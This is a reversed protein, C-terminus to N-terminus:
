TCWRRIAKAYLDVGSSLQSLSVWEDSTHAQAINGPGLVFMDKLETFEGGDTGYCVTKPSCEALKCMERICERDPDVWVFGGGIHRKFKLGLEEAMTRVEEILDEGDIEPMSRLSVWAKCRDPTINVAKAGDSVGFNWSLIPPDFRADHYRSENRTRHSIELLKQLVPVMAENANVGDVTSSHAAVGRSFIEFGTIGKHAHVVQLSTPEGIVSVPQHGVIERYANSNAVLERAGEFGVEEDATCVIWIPARQQNVPIQEAAGLMSVFSGKMDCSGRGYVRDENVVAAFPDGGPGTWGVAPVVDNHCFYALGAGESALEPARKAVLNVKTVGAHDSYRSTEVSFGLDELLECSHNAVAENSDCSVSSFGILNSLTETLKKLNAM